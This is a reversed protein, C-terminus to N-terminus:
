PDKFFIEGTAAFSGIQDTLLTGYTDYAAVYVGVSYYKGHYGNNNDYSYKQNKFPIWLKRVYTIEKSVAVDGDQKTYNGHNYKFTKNALVTVKQTDVPDILLTGMSGPKVPLSSGLNTSAGKVIWVKFTINPRDYFHRFLFNLKIGRLIIEDGIRSNTAGDQVGQSTQLINGSMRHSINHMLTTWNYTNIRHKTEAQRLAVTKAIRAIKSNLTSRKRFDRKKYTKKNYRRAYPM